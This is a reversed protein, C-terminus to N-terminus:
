EEKWPLWGKKAVMMVPSCLALDHRSFYDAVLPSSHPLMKEWGIIKVKNELM